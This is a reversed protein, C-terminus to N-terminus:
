RCSTGLENDIEDDLDEDFDVRTDDFEIADVPPQSDQRSGTSSEGQGDGEPASVPEPVTTDRTAQRPFELPVHEKQRDRARRRQRFRRAADRLRIEAPTLWEDDLSPLPVLRGDHDYERGCQVSLEM